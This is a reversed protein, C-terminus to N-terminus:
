TVHEALTEFLHYALHPSDRYCSYNDQQVQSTLHKQLLSSDMRHFGMYWDMFLREDLVGGAIVSVQCHRSDAEIREFLKEVRSQKGELYQICAGELLILQGTIGLRRNKHASEAALRSFDEPTLDPSPCSIYILFYMGESDIELSEKREELLTILKEEAMPRYFYYGQISQIGLACVLDREEATEVGEAILQLQLSRGMRSIAAVVAQQDRQQDLRDIFARDIKLTHAQLHVLQALSSFGTGFDDVALRLGMDVLRELVARTNSIDAMLATETIELVLNNARAGTRKLIVEFSEVLQEDIMQRTSLNVSIYPASEGFYHYLRQETLCAQEFVWRGIDVIIRSSEAVPIFQAPSIEGKPSRWRLLLEMGKIVGSDSGVIPQYNVYFENRGLAQRLGSAIELRQSAEQQVQQSFFQWGDRGKQKIAYMAADANRLLDQASHTTGHGVAIGISASISLDSGQYHVMRRLEEGLRQAVQAVEDAAELAECVVVFEDGALRAVTDGPRVAQILRQSLTKLLQDGAAHGYSDNVEKFGDLDIFLLALTGPGRKSRELAHTLRELILNRNPLGTLTDHTAQWAIDQRKKKDQTLDRITAVLLWGNTGRVKAISAEMPFYTGDKRYGSIESRRNMRVETQDSGIFHQIHDAHRGRLAPPVLSHVSMGILEGTQYGFLLEATANVENILGAEDCAVVAIDAVSLIRSAGQDRQRSQFAEEAIRQINTTQKEKSDFPTNFARRFAERYYEPIRPHIAGFNELIEFTGDAQCRSLYSNVQAHHISGDMKVQGQPAEINVQELAAVLAEPDTSGAQTIAQSFAKVCVYTGEGFNTLTGQGQPWIGDVDPQEALRQLYHQNAETKVSMFYTNSSYFGERVEPQLHSVLVEDYHGMVVAMRQKLGKETFRSLLNIQDIGAFYPVFVDAGSRAVGELLWDIDEPSTGIPLYQEGVVEGKMSLLSAKAADISGRPWEYNNGAFYFKSGYKRAMYPIMRQIQQNPLAAFHFFYRGAISGEYFSFNLYPTRRPESVQEAVAIRSNSLLNGIFACCQHQDLLRQAAPVATEPLSGDDEIVLELPRGLLGGAQNIEEVAIRAAWCIEQGYIQVLGTLPAMLGLRIPSTHKTSM